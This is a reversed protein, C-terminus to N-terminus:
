GSLEKTVITNDLPTQIFNAIGEVEKGGEEVIGAMVLQVMNIELLDSQAIRRPTVLKCYKAWVNPSISLLEKPTITILQM